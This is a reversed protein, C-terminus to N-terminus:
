GNSLNREINIQLWLSFRNWFTVAIKVTFNFKIFNQLMMFWLRCQEVKVGTTANVNKTKHCCDVTTTKMM